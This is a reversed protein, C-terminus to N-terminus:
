FKDTAIGLERDLEEELLEAKHKLCCLGHETVVVLNPNEWLKEYWNIFKDALKIQKKTLHNAMAFSALSFITHYNPDEEQLTRALYLLAPKYQISGNKDRMPRYLKIVKKVIEYEQNNKTM